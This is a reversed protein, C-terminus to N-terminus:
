STSLGLDLRGFPADLAAAPQVAHPLSPFLSKGAWSAALLRAPWFINFSFPRGDHAEPLIHKYIIRACRRSAAFYSFLVLWRGLEQARRTPMRGLRFGKRPVQSTVQLVRWASAVGRRYRAPLLDYHLDLGLRQYGCTPCSLAAGLAVKIWQVFCSRHM